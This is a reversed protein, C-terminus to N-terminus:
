AIEPSSARLPTYHNKGHAYGRTPSVSRDAAWAVRTHVMGYFGIGQWVFIGRLKSRPEENSHLSTKRNRKNQQA